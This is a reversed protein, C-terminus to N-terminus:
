GALLRRVAELDEPTDVGPPPAEPIVEVRIAMGHWLARLQELMEVSETPAPPLATLRKLTAVRYAYLGIHRLYPFRALDIGGGDRDFPIAARSFYSAHGTGAMVIKVMNPNAVDAASTFPCGFTAMHATADAELAAGVLRIFPSPLLPEDGQVNVVIEDEAWGLATAVEAIRDTGSVHDARTMVAQGGFAAVAAAVRDDDTAVYVDAPAAVELARDVVHRIMPKGAIDALPKGPLRSSAYRAPIVVKM